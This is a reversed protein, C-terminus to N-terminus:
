KGKNNNDREEAQDDRRLMAQWEHEDIGSQRKGGTIELLQEEKLKTLNDMEVFREVMSLLRERQQHDLQDLLEGMKEYQKQAM